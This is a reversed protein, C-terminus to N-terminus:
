HPVKANLFDEWTRRGVARDPAIIAGDRVARAAGGMMPVPAIPRRRGTHRLYERVLDALAYVRPGAIDPVLGAPEGLALEAMHKAVEGTDVPQSRVGPVPVVPLKSLARVVVLILDYFQTARLTTWPLGSGAIVREGARKSEYYGFLARDLPTRVPVRDAGVVSIYVIHPSGAGASARVLTQAKEGDGKATGACHVITRAGAVAADVGEGTTLDGVVYEVGGSPPRPRRSMVRVQEGADQLLPVVLSGLTGTGGTVVITM